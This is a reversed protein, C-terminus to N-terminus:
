LHQSTYNGRGSAGGLRATPRSALEAGDDATKIADVEDAGVNDLNSRRVIGISLVRGHSSRIRKVLDHGDHDLPAREAEAGNAVVHLFESCKISKSNVCFSHMYSSPPLAFKSAPTKPVKNDERKRAGQHRCRTHILFIFSVHGTDKNQLAAGAM